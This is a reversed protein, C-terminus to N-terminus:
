SVGFVVARGSRQIDYFLHTKRFRYLAQRALSSTARTFAGGTPAGVVAVAAKRGLLEVVLLRQAGTTVVLDGVADKEALGAVLSGVARTLLEALDSDRRM